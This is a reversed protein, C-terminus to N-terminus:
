ETKQRKFNWFWATGWDGAGPEPACLRLATDTAKLIQYVYQRQNNNNVLIGMLPITGSFTMTGIDWGDKKKESTVSVAGTEGRSTVVGNGGLQMTFWGDIGDKALGKDTAQTTIDSASVIWWSPGTSEMYGGNGWVGDAADTDWTYKFKTFGGNGDGFLTTLIPDLDTYNNM